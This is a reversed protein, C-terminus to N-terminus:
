QEETVIADVIPCHDFSLLLSVTFPVTHSLFPTTLEWSKTPGFTVLLGSRRDRRAQFKRHTPGKKGWRETLDLYEEPTGLAM